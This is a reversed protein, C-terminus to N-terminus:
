IESLIWKQAQHNRGWGLLVVHAGSDSIGTSIWVRTHPQCKGVCRICVEDLAATPVGLTDLAWCGTDGFNVGRANWLLLSTHLHQRASASHTSPPNNVAGGTGRFVRCLDEILSSLAAPPMFVSCPKELTSQNVSKINRLGSCGKMLAQQIDSFPSCTAAIGVNCSSLHQGV